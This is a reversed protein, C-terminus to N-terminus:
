FRSVSMTRQQSGSRASKICHEGNKLTHMLTHPPHPPGMYSDGEFPNRYGCGQDFHLTKEDQEYFLERQLQGRTGCGLGM